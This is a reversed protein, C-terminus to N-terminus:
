KLFTPKKSSHRPQTFKLFNRDNEFNACLKKKLYRNSGLNGIKLFGAKKQFHLHIKKEKRMFHVCNCFNGPPLM